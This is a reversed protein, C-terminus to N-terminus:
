FPYGIGLNWVINESRWQRSSFDIRDFVWRQGDPLYPKRFPIAVDLRVVLFAVDLRLGIGGGVALEKMFEKSFKAGPKNPDPNLLWINGADVFVAGHIVSFLKARLETNLELKLDGSQDPVFGTTTTDKYTGPGITRTRFARISSTGGIFFQKVYPLALSNGYPLGVGIIIRNALVMTPSLQLHYRPEAELRTYQSFKANLIMVSDGTKANAGTILGAVNGSLDVNGNFYFGTSFQSRGHLQNYNFNYNAGLIFQKEIAKYLTPDNEASDLYMQSVQMPQVYTISFPNLTHEKQINEKWVYGFEAEVSQMTYLKRKNLLDYALSIKTKPMFAGTSNVSFFPVIFKPFSLSAEV